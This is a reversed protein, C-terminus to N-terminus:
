KSPINALTPGLKVIAAIVLAALILGAVEPFVLRVGYWAVLGAIIWALTRGTNEM